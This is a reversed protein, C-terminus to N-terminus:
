IKHGGKDLRCGCEVSSRRISPPLNSRSKCTWSNQSSPCLISDFGLFQLLGLFWTIRFDPNSGVNRWFTASLGMHEAKGASMLIRWTV